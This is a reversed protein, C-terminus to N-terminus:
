MNSIDVQSEHVIKLMNSVDVQSERVHATSYVQAASSDEAEGPINNEYINLEVENNM